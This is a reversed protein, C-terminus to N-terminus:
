LDPINLLQVLDMVRPWATDFPIFAEGTDDRLREYEYRARAEVEDNFASKSVAIDRAACKEHLYVAILAVSIKDSQDTSIRAIDFVDQRRHRNRIPQQLLSRLKEAVIDDLTCVLIDTDSGIRRIHDKCVKDNISIEIPITDSLPRDFKEFDAYRKDGLLAFGISLQYTPFTSNPSGPERKVSQLKLKYDTRNPPVAAIASEIENKLWDASDPVSDKATFDLDITGRPNSYVLRLANGGKFVIQRGIRHSAITKAVVYQAYRRRAAGIPLGHVM